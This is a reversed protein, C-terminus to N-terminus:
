TTPNVIVTQSDVLHYPGKRATPALSQRLVPSKHHPVGSKGISSESYQALALHGKCVKMHMFEVDTVRESILRRSIM